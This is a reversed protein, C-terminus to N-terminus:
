LLVENIIELHFIIDTINWPHQYERPEKVQIPFFEKIPINTHKPPLQRQTGDANRKQCNSILYTNKFKIPEYTIHLLFSFITSFYLYFFVM